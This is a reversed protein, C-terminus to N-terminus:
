FGERPVLRQRVLRWLDYVVCTHTTGCTEHPNTSGANQQPAFMASFHALVQQQWQCLLCVPALAVEGVPVILMKSFLQSCSTRPAWPPGVVGVILGMRFPSSPKGIHGKEGNLPHRARYTTGEQFWRWCPGPYALLVVNQARM